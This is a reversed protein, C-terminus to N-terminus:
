RPVATPARAECARLGNAAGAALARQMAPALRDFDFAVDGRGHPRLGLRRLRLLASGDSDHAPHLRLLRMAHNFFERARLAKLLLVLPM